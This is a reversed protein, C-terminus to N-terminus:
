VTKRNGAGNQVKTLLSLEPPEVGEGANTPPDAKHATAMRIPTYHHWMTKMIIQM